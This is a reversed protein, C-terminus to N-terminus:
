ELGGVLGLAVPLRERNEFGIAAREQLRVFDLQFLSAEEIDRSVPALSSLDESRAAILAAPEGTTGM